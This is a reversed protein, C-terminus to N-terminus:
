TIVADFGFFFSEAAPPIGSSDELLMRMTAEQDHRRRSHV